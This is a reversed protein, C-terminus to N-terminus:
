AIGLHLWHWTVGMMVTNQVGRYRPPTVIARRTVYAKSMGRYFSLDRRYDTGSAGNYIDVLADFETDYIDGFIIILGDLGNIVEVGDGRIIRPARLSDEDQDSPQVTWTTIAGGPAGSGYVTPPAPLPM